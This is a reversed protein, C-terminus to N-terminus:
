RVLVGFSPLDGETAGTTTYHVFSDLHKPTNQIKNEPKNAKRVLNVRYGLSSHLEDTAQVPRM